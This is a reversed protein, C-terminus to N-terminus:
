SRILPELWSQGNGMALSTGDFTCRVEVPFVAGAANSRTAQSTEGVPGSALRLRSFLRRAECLFDAPIRLVQM